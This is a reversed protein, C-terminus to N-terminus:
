EALKTQQINEVKNPSPAKSSSTESHPNVPTVSRQGFAKKLTEAQPDMDISGNFQAGDELSIRPATINGKIRASKRVVVQDSAILHGAMSGEVFITHAYIDASVKGQPGITVSNKKLEINGKVVGQILLDEDGKVAGDIQISAGIVAILSSSRLSNQPTAPSNPTQAKPPNVPRTERSDIERKNFM